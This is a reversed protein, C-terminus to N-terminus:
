KRARREQREWNYLGEDNDLWQAREADNSPKCNEGYARVIGADIEARNKQIFERRTM